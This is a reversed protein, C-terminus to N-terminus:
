AIALGREVQRRRKSRSERCSRGQGPHPSCLGWLARVDDESRFAYEYFTDTSTRSAVL